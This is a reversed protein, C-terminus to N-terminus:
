DKRGRRNAGKERQATHTADQWHPDDLPVPPSWGEEYPMPKDPEILPRMLELTLWDAANQWEKDNMKGGWSHATALNFYEVPMGTMPLTPGSDHPHTPDPVWDTVVYDKYAECDAKAKAVEEPTLNSLDRESLEYMVYGEKASVMVQWKQYKGIWPSVSFGMWNKPPKKFEDLPAKPYLSNRLAAVAYDGTPDVTYRWGRPDDFDNVVEGPSGALREGDNWRGALAMLFPHIRTSKEVAYGRLETELLKIADQIEEGSPPPDKRHLLGFYHGYVEHYRAKWYLWWGADWETRDGTWQPLQPPAVINGALKAQLEAVDRELSM